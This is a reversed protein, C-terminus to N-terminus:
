FKENRKNNRKSYIYSNSNKTRKFIIQTDIRTPDKENTINEDKFYTELSM